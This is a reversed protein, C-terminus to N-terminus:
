KKGDSDTRAASALANIAGRRLTPPPHVPYDLLDGRGYKWRLLTAMLRSILRPYYALLISHMDLQVRRLKLERRLSGEAYLEVLRDGFRQNWCSRVIASYAYGEDELAGIGLEMGVNHVIEEWEWFFRDLSFSELLRRFTVVIRAGGLKLPFLELDFFEREINPPVLRRM